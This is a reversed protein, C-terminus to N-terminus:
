LNKVLDRDTKKEEELIKLKLLLYELFLVLLLGPVAGLLGILLATLLNVHVSAYFASVAGVLVLAWAMGLMFSTLRSLIETQLRM